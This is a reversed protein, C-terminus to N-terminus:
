WDCSVADRAPKISGWQQKGLHELTAPLLAAREAFHTADKRSARPRCGVMYASVVRAALKQLVASAAKQGPLHLVAEQCALRYHEIEAGQSGTAPGGGGAAGPTRPPATIPHIHDNTSSLLLLAIITMFAYLRYDCYFYTLVRHLVDFVIDFLTM